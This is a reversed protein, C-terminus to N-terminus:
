KFATNPLGCKPCGDADFALHERVDGLTREVLALRQANEIEIRRQEHGM